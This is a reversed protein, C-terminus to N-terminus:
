KAKSKKLSAKIKEMKLKLRKNEAMITDARSVASALQNQLHLITDPVAKESDAFFEPITSVFEEAVENFVAAMPSGSGPRVETSSCNVGVNSCAKVMVSNLKPKYGTDNYHQERGEENKIHLITLEIRTNENSM